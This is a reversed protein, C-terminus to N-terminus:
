SDLLGSFWSHDLKRVRRLERLQDKTLATVEAEAGGLPAEEPRRVRTEMEEESGEDDEEKESDM